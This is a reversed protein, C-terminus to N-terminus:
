CVTNSWRDLFPWVAIYVGPEDPVNTLGGKRLFPLREAGKLKAFLARIGKVTTRVETSAELVINYGRCCVIRGQPPRSTETGRAPSLPHRFSIRLNNNSEQGGEPHHAGCVGAKRGINTIL